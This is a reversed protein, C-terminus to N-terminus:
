RNCGTRAQFYTFPNPHKRQILRWLIYTTALASVAVAIISAEPGFRGGNLLTPGKLAGVIAGEYASSGSVSMGYIDSETFNWALHLGIPFWLSQTLAYAAGLLLGAELAIAVSSVVTAGPNFAHPAGFLVSTAVLAWWTNAVTDILRFLFGRFLIEETVAACLAAIAGTALGKTSGWGLPQYISLTWLLLIVASFLCFGLALGATLKGLRSGTRAFEPIPRREILRIGALYAVIVVAATIIRLALSPIRGHAIKSVVILLIIALAFNLLGLSFRKIAEKAESHM